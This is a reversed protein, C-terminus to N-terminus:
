GLFKMYFMLSEKLFEREQQITESKKKPTIGNEPNSLIDDNQNDENIQDYDKTFKSRQSSNM